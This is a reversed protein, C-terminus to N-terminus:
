AAAPPEPRRWDHYQLRCANCHVFPARTLAFLLSIPHRSVVDIRDRAQLRRVKATGCQICHTFRSFLFLTADRMPVRWTRVRTHCRTCEEVRKLYLREALTRRERELPGGCRPCSKTM